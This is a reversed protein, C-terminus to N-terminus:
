HHRSRGVHSLFGSTHGKGPVLQVPPEDSSDICKKLSLVSFIQENKCAAILAALSSPGLPVPACPPSSSSVASPYVRMDLTGVKKRWRKIGKRLCVIPLSLKSFHLHGQLPGLRFLPVCKPLIFVVRQKLDGREYEHLKGIRPPNCCHCDGKTKCFERVGQPVHPLRCLQRCHPPHRSKAPHPQSKQM